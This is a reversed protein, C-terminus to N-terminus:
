ARAEGILINKFDELAATNESIVMLTRQVLSGYKEEADHMAELAVHSSLLQRLYEERSVKKKAALEDIKKVAVADLGRILVDM